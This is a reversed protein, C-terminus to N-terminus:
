GKAAGAGECAHPTAHAAHRAPHRRAHVDPALQLDQGLRVGRDGELLEQLEAAVVIQRLQLRAAHGLGPRRAADRRVEGVVALRPGVREEEAGGLDQAGEVRRNADAGLVVSDLRIDGAHARAVGRHLADGGGRGALESGAAGTGRCRFIAAAAHLCRSAGSLASTTRQRLSAERAAM